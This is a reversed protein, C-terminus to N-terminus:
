RPTRTALLRRRPSLRVLRDRWRGLRLVTATGADVLGVRWRLLVSPPMLTAALRQRRTAAGGLARRVARLGPVLEADQLPERAYRAREEARGLLRAGEAADGDLPAHRILRDATSRPTETPDVPVRFDVMTDLLEDWAAHADARAQAADRLGVVVVPRVGAPDDGPRGEVAPATVPAPVARSRRRRLAARRLAPVALLIVLLVVGALTWWPWNTANPTPLAGGGADSGEDIRNGPGATPTAGPDAGTPTTPGLTPGTEPEDPSPAWESTVSGAVNAAPTADFPVWGFGDFYVETWAHLNRNTLTFTDGSRNSGNAFGFAVRAPIGATRVMWAMAAAYQECFGARNDLFDVIDTGSTGPETELSYTFKNEASFFDYIARVKDYDTDQGKILEDVQEKVADIPPVVTFARLEGTGQGFSPARRLEAPDYKTRVYEFEYSKGKSRSRGSYMVQMDHDFFWSSDIDEVSVPQHYIPLMPMDFSDSIEVRARYTQPTSGPPDIVRDRANRMYNPVSRGNPSRSSFGNPGVRDAVAFRLYYPDPESTTVKLLDQTEAQNLRGSLEAFLDVAGPGRRPGDGTGDGGGQGITNVLGAGVSPVALPLAVAALVGVVALRRGAAALPSPEWVDVDRGDGTFRRGFRRVREVNDAVLLWLFGCAGIVFPIPSVSDTYVAVPVSYIALMPLGALAPRRLSVTVFDVIIAVAGVGLVTLFLLGRRDPVPVGYSRMDDMAETLLGGFYSFTDPTPVLALLEGDSPYLWTLVLLLTGSMALVQAWIPARMSRTLMAVGAILGVTILCQFFWRWTAFIDTLPAAALLTAAAAVLGMHKRTTM